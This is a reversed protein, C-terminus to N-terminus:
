LGECCIDHARILLSIRAKAWLVALTDIESERIVQVVRDLTLTGLLVTVWEAFDSDNRLVLTVTDKDYGWM